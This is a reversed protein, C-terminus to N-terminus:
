DDKLKECIMKLCLYQLLGEYGKGWKAKQDIVENINEITKDALIKFDNLPEKTFKLYQSNLDDNYDWLVFESSLKGLLDEIYINASM